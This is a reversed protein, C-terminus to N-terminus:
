PDPLEQELDELALSGLEPARAAVGPRRGNMKFPLGPVPLSGGGWPTVEHLADRAQVQPDALIEGIGLVPGCAISCELLRTILEDTSLRRTVATIAETLPQIHALRERETCFRPDDALPLPLAECLRKFADDHSVAIAVHGDATPYVDFPAAVPHRNGIQAPDEGTATRIGFAHTSLALQAELMSIDLRAGEGTAARSVLASLIALAAYIGAVIDGQSVGVRTPADGPHGTVSMVGGMAQVVVDYAPRSAYPGDAGFGSLSAYILRPNAAMAEQAGLGMAEMVGPRFAEVVCDVRLFLRRLRAVEDPDRLNAVVSDKGRNQPHFYASDGNRFPGSRRAPDGAPPEVKIVRAGLDRLIMTAFPGGLVRTFDLVVMGDLPPRVMDRKLESAEHEDGRWASM